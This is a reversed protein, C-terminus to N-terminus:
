GGGPLRPPTDGGGDDDGRRLREGGQGEELRRIRELADRVFDRMLEVEERLQRVEDRDLRDPGPQKWIHILYVAAGFAVIWPLVAVVLYILPIFPM